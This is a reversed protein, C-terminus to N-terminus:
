PDQVFPAPPPCPFSSRHVGAQVVRRWRNRAPKRVGHRAPSPTASDVARRTSLASRTGGNECLCRRVRRMTPLKLRGIRLREPTTAASWPRQERSEPRSRRFCSWSVTGPQNEHASLFSGRVKECSRKEPKRKGSPMRAISRARHDSPGRSTSAQVELSWAGRGFPACASRAFRFSRAKSTSM